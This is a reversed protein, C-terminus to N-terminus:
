DIANDKEKRYAFLILSIRDEGRYDVGGVKWEWGADVDNLHQLISRNLNTKIFECEYVYDRSDCITKLASKLESDKLASSIDATYIVSREIPSGFMWAVTKDSALSDDEVWENKGDLEVQGICRCLRSTLNYLEDLVQKIPALLCEIPVRGHTNVYKGVYFDVAGRDVLDYLKEIYCKENTNNKQEMDISRNAVM